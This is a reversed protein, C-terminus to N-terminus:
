GSRRKVVAERVLLILCVEGWHYAEEYVVSADHTGAGVAVSHLQVYQSSYIDIGQPSTAAVVAQHISYRLHLIFSM